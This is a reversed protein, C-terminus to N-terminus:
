KITMQQSCVGPVGNEHSKKGRQKHSWYSNYIFVHSTFLPNILYNTGVATTDFPRAEDPLVEDDAEDDDEAEAAEPGGGGVPAVASGVM